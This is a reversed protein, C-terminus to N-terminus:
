VRKTYGDKTKVNDKSKDKVNMVTNFVNGLFNKEIHMVNLNHRLLNDKWYALDWFISRKTWNHISGFGAVRTTGLETVKPFIQVFKWISERDLVVPLDRKEVIDKRFSKKSRRFSHNPPLFWRHCDFWSHKKGFKLWFANTEDMCYPCALKGHTSWGSLM